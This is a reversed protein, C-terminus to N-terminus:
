SPPPPPEPCICGSLGGDRDWDVSFWDSLLGTRFRFENGTMTVLQDGFQLTVELVRGGDEGLGNKESTYVRDLTRGDFRAELDAVDITDQWDHNPNREVGDGLDEVAPFDGGASWGGTSSSFETRAVEGDRIRVIGATNAIAIDALPHENSSLSGNTRTARGDYVQCSITDCSRAYSARDEALSYSRASVSQAELAAAGAGDGLEAWSAPMERPVVARLYWEVAVANVTRQEGGNHVARLEGRYYRQESSSVCRQITQELPLDPNLRATPAVNGPQGGLTVNGGDHRGPDDIGDGNWDGVLANGAPAYQIRPVEPGPGLSPRRIWTEGRIVGVDDTGNGDWDGVLPADSAQGYVFQINDAGGGPRLIWTRGRRVGLDDNGDGDWDGAIPIDGPEGFDITTFDGGNGLVWEGDRFIAATDIGDGDWDGGIPVGLPMWFTSRVSAAPNGPAGNYLTWSNGDATAVEDDGDGDWDGVVVEGAGITGRGAAPQGDSTSIRIEEAAIVGPRTTFPGACTPADALEFGGSVATLAIAGGSGVHTVDGASNILVISGSDVQAVTPEDNASEIRITLLENSVTGATTGGYYHDLIQGSSWGFDVAYGLAGYQSMGRGHGFGHGTVHITTPDATPIQSGLLNTSASFTALVTLVTLTALAMGKPVLSQPPKM